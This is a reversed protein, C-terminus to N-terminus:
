QEVPHDPVEIHINCTTQEAKICERVHDRNWRQVDSWFSNRDAVGRMQWGSFWSLSVLVGAVGCAWFVTEWYHVQRMQKSIASVLDKAQTRSAAFGQASLQVAKAELVEIQRKTAGDLRVMMAQQETTLTDALEDHAQNLLREVEDVRRELAQAALETSSLVAMVKEQMSLFQSEAQRFVRNMLQEFKEPHEEMLVRMEGTSLVILFAPDDVDWHNKLTLDLVKARFADNRHELARDIASKAKARYAKLQSNM